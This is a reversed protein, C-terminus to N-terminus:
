GGDDDSLEYYGDDDEYESAEDEEVREGRGNYIYWLGQKCVAIYRSIYKTYLKTYLSKHM